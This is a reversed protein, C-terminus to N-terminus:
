LNKRERPYSCAENKIEQSACVEVSENKKTKYGIGVSNM